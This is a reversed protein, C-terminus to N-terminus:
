STREQEAPPADYHIRLDDPRTPAPAAALRRDPYYFRRRLHDDLTATSRYGQLTGWFQALRFRLIGYAEGPLVGARLAAAWDAATNGLWLRVFDGVDFTAQPFIRRYAIAERRYRNAIQKWTEEHVHVIEAHPEYTLGWGAALARRAWDLDELGTLTEDYPMQEWVSRRVACNANNCFPHKQYETRKDPFWRAFVRHEAYRTREDGRQKGYVLAIQPDSFHAALTELWDRYVPYVHASAFVLV